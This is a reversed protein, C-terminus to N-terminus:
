IIKTHNLYKQLFVKLSGFFAVYSQFPGGTGQWISLFLRGKTDRNWRAMTQWWHVLTPYAISTQGPEFTPTGPWIIYTYKTIKAFISFKRSLIQQKRQGEFLKRAWFNEPVANTAFLTGSFDSHRPGKRLRLFSIAGCPVAWKGMCVWKEAGQTM